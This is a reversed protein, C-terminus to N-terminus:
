KASADKSGVGLAVQFLQLHDRAQAEYSADNADKNFCRFLVYDVAPIDWGDALGFVENPDALATGTGDLVMVPAPKVAVLAYVGVGAVIPPMVDFTYPEREDLAFEEVAQSTPATGRWTRFAADLIPRSVQRVTAGTPANTTPDTNCLIDYMRLWRVSSDITRLDQRSGAALSLTKYTSAARPALEAIQDQAENLWRALEALSWRVRGYDKTVDTIRDIISQITAQSM